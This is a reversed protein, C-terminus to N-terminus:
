GATGVSDPQEAPKRSLGVFVVFLGLLAGTPFAVLPSWGTVTLTGPLRTGDDASRALTTPDAPMGIAGVQLMVWGALLSGGAVLVLTVLERRDTVLAGILGALLGTVLAVLVYLGTASFPSSNTAPYWVGDLVTGRMPTWIWRWVLGGVVGALAFLLVVLVVDRVLGGGAHRARTM